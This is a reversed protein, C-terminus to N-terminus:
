KCISQSFTPKNPETATITKCDHLLAGAGQKYSSSKKNGKRGLQSDKWYFSRARSVQSILSVNEFPCKIAKRRRRKGIRSSSFSSFSSLFFFFFFVLRSPSSQADALRSPWTLQIDVSSSKLDSEKQIWAMCQAAHASLCIHSLFAMSLSPLSLSVFLFCSVLSPVFLPRFFSFVLLM